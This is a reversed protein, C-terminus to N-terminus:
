SSGPQGSEDDHPARRHPAQGKRQLGKGFEEVAPRGISASSRDERFDKPKGGAEFLEASERCAPTSPATEEVSERPFIRASWASAPTPVENSTRSRLLIRRGVPLSTARGESGRQLFFFFFFFVLTSSTQGQFTACPSAGGSSGGGQPQQAGTRVVVKNPFARDAGRTRVIEADVFAGKRGLDSTLPRWLLV